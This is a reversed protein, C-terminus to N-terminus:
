REIELGRRRSAEALARMGRAGLPNDWLRLTRLAELSGSGALAVAGEDGISDACLGLEVLRRLSTSRSLAIAGDDGLDEHDSLDLSTLSTLIASEAVAAAGRAGIANEHLDLQTLTRLSPASVLLAVGADGLDNASLDLRTLPYAARALAGASDDGLHNGRLSLEVPRLGEASALASVGEREIATHALDLAELASLGEASALAEAGETGIANGWLSLRTLAHLNASALAEAGRAGIVSACLELAIWAPRDPGVLREVGDDGIRTDRLCLRSLGSAIESRMLADIGNADLDSGSLELRALPGATPHQLLAELSSLTHAGWSLTAGVVFGCRWLLRADEPVVQAPLRSWCHAEAIQEIESRLRAREDDGLQGSAIQLELAIWRGRPDRHEILWDAFVGWLHPDDPRSRLAHLLRDREREGRHTAM